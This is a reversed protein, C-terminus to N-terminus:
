VISRDRRSRRSGAPTAGSQNNEVRCVCTGMSAISLETKRLIGESGDLVLVVVQIGFFFPAYSTLAATLREINGPISYIERLM